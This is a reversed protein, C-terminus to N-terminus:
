VADQGGAAELPIWAIDSFVLAKLEEGASGELQVNGFHVSINIVLM